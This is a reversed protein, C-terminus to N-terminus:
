ENKQYVQDINSILWEGDKNVGTLVIIQVIKEGNTGRIVEGNRTCSIVGTIKIRFEIKENEFNLLSYNVLDIHTNKENHNQSKFIDIKHEYFEKMFDDFLNEFGKENNNIKEIALLYKNYLTMIIQDTEASTVQNNELIGKNKNENVLKIMEKYKKNRKKCFRASSIVVILCVFIVVTSVIVASTSIEDNYLM